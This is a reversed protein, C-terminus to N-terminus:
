RRFVKVNVSKKHVYFVVRIPKGNSDNGDNVVILVFKGRIKKRFRYDKVRLVVGWKFMLETMADQLMSEKSKNGHIKFSLIPYNMGRLLYNLTLKKPTRSIAILRSM